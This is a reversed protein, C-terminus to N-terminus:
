LFSMFKNIGRGFACFFFLELFAFLEVEINGQKQKKYKKMHPVPVEERRRELIIAVSFCIM